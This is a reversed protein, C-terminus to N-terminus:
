VHLIEKEKDSLIEDIKKIMEDTLKQIDEGAKREEDESIEKAKQHKKVQEMGDRRVNRIAVRAGEAYKAAVKVLEARRESTMEPLMVRVIQGDAVPNVGLNADRIAKEVLKVMGKDWVQVTLLRAEPVSVTGVQSIPMLSGYADVKVHELLAPNARGTRLGTYEKRLSDLGANMRKKLDEHIEALM